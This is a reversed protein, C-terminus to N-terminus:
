LWSKLRAKKEGISAILLWIIARPAERIAQPAFIVTTKMIHLSLKCDLLLLAFLGIFFPCLIQGFM